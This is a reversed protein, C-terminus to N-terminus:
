AETLDVTESEDDPSLDRTSLAKELSADVVLTALKEEGGVVVKVKSADEEIARGAWLRNDRDLTRNADLLILSLQKQRQPGVADGVVFLLFCLLEHFGRQLYLVPDSVDSRTLNDLIQAEPIQVDFTISVGRFLDAYKSTSRFFHDLESRLLTPTGCALLTDQVTSLFSNVFEILRKPGGHRDVILTETEDKLEVHGAQILQFLARTAEREGLQSDRGIEEVTRVGDVLSMVMRLEEGLPVIKAGARRQVPIVLPSPIREKFYQQEDLLRAGDFLLQRTSLGLDPAHERDALLSDEREFFYAGTRVALLSLFIEEVQKKVFFFVDHSSLLGMEVLLQGVRRTNQTSSLARDLEARSIRGYRFLIEGLRDNTQTSSAGRVEGALFRIERASATDIVRLRGSWRNQHIFGIIDALGGTKAIDGALAIQPSARLLSAIALVVEEPLDLTGAELHPISHGVKRDNPAM